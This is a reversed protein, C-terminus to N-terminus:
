VGLATSIIAPLTVSVRVAYPAAGQPFAVLVLDITMLLTIVAAAPVGMAAQEEDTAIFM